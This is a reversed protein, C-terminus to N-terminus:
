EAETSDENRAGKSPPKLTFVATLEGTENIIHLTLKKVDPGIRAHGTSDFLAFSVKYTAQYYPREATWPVYQTQTYTSNAYGTAYGSSYGGTGYTNGYASGSTHSTGRTTVPSKGTFTMTGSKDTGSTSGQEAPYNHGADDSLVFTTVHVDRQDAAREKEWVKRAVHPVSTVVVNFDVTQSFCGETKFREPVPSEAYNIAAKYEDISIANGYIGRILVLSEHSTGGRGRTWIPHQEYVEAFIPKKNGKTAADRGVKIADVVQRGSVKFAPNLGSSDPAEQKPEPQVSKEPAPQCQAPASFTFTAALCIMMPRLSKCYEM